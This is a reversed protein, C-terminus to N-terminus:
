PRRAPKAFGCDSDNWLAVQHRSAAVLCKQEVNPPERVDADFDCALGSNGHRLKNVCVARDENWAAEFCFSTPDAQKIPGTFNPNDYLDILTGDFTYSQGTGCYDARLARVCAGFREDMKSAPPFGWVVCKGAIGANNWSTADNPDPLCAFTVVGRKFEFAHDTGNWAARLAILRMEESPASQSCYTKGDVAAVKECTAYWQNIKVCDKTLKLKSAFVGRKPPWSTSGFSPLTAVPASTEKIEFGVGLYRLGQTHIEATHTRDEQGPSVTKTQALVEGHLPFVWLTSAMCAIRILGSSGSTM